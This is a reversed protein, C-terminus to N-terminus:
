WLHARNQSNSFVLVLIPPVQHVQSFSTPCVCLDCEGLCEMFNSYNECTIVGHVGRIVDKFRVLQETLM